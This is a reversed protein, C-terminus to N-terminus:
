WGLGPLAVSNANWTSSWSPFQMPLWIRIFEITDENPDYDDWRDVEDGQIEYIVFHDQGHQGRVPENAIAPDVAGEGADMHDDGEGGWLADFGEGGFLQDDGEGGFLTDNGRGGLLWDNDDGGALSSGQNDQVAHLIDNGAGGRALRCDVLLDNGDDGKGIACSILDDNGPGANVEHCGVIIDNLASGIVNVHKLDFSNAVDIRGTPSTEM